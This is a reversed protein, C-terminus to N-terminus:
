GVVVDAEIDQGRLEISVHAPLCVITQGPKTIKGTNVCVKDPCNSGTVSVGDSELCLILDLDEDICIERKESVYKLTETLVVQSNKKVVVELDGDATKGEFYVFGVTLAILFGILLFDFVTVRKRANNNMRIQAEKSSLKRWTPFKRM